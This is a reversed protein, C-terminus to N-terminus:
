ELKNQIDYPMIINFFSLGIGGGQGKPNNCVLFLTNGKQNSRLHITEQKFSTKHLVGKDKLKAGTIIHYHIGQEGKRPFM